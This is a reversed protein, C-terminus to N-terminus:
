CNSSMGYLFYSANIQFTLDAVIDLECRCTKLLMLTKIGCLFLQPRLRVCALNFPRIWRGSFGTKIKFKVECVRGKAAHFVRVDAGRLSM